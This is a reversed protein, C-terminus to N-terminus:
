LASTKRVIMWHFFLALALGFLGGFVLSKTLFALPLQLEFPKSALSMVVGYSLVLATILGLLASKFWGFM